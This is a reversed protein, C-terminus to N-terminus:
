QAMEQVGELPSMVGGENLSTVQEWKGDLTEKYLVVTNDGCSVALISGTVSWSVRWAPSPLTLKCQQTWQQGEMEQTWIIVSKDESCSAIANSPIGVNPRWAVDRVWDNHAQGFHHQEMWEESPDDHRWIRVQNDCGGTVIRRPGLTAGQVAPGSALTAPCTAPAWSVANVGNGHAKFSKRAWNANAMNPVYQHVSVTGDSSGAALILGYDWPCFSLTNVSATHSEDKYIMQWDGPKMERWVIIRKDYSCSALMNGFKPHAWSIQWVPGEHGKLEAVFNQTETSVDWIRISHDSSATALRKGYYDLQTDHITGQHATDFSSVPQAM